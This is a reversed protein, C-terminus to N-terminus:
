LQAKSSTVQKPPSDTAILHAIGIPTFLFHLVTVLVFAWFFLPDLNNLFNSGVGVAIFALQTGLMTIVTQNVSFGADLLRHHLHKRDAQLPSHKDLIRRTMVVITDALPLGLIWGASIPSLVAKDGQTYEILHWVLIFGLFTSGTDGLFISAHSRFLRCNYILFACIATILSALLTIATSDGSLGAFLIMPFLSLAILSGSLGDVGDIMNISNIVGVTCLATFFYAVLGTFIINGSGIVNGINNIEIGGWYIMALASFIQISIRTTPSLPQKDDIVGSVVIPLSLVLPLFFENSLALIAGSILVSIYIALGGIIPVDGSHHKRGGPKDILKLVKAKSRLVPIFACCIAFSIAAPIIFENVGLM